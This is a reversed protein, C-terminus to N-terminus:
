HFAESRLKGILPIQLGHCSPQRLDLSCFYWSGAPIAKEIKTIADTMMLSNFYGGGSLEIHYGADMTATVFDWSVTTPTMGAVIIPPLGLFRSM